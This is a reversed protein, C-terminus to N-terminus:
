VAQPVQPRGFEDVLSKVIKPMQCIFSYDGRAISCKKCNQNLNYCELAQETWNQMISSSLEGNTQPTFFDAVICNTKM